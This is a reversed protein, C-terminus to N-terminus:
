SCCAILKSCALCSTLLFRRSNALSKSLHVRPFPFSCCCSPLLLELSAFISRPHFSVSLSIFLCSFSLCLFFIYIFLCSSIYFFLLMVIFATLFICFDFTSSNFLFFLSILVLMVFLFLFRLSVTLFASCSVLSKTELAFCPASTVFIIS